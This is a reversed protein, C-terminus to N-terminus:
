SLPAVVMAIHSGSMLVTIPEFWNDVANATMFAMAAADASCRAMCVTANQARFHTIRRMIM